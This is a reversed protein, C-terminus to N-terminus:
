EGELGVVGKELRHTRAHIRAHPAPLANGDIEIHQDAQFLNVTRWILAAKGDAPAAECCIPRRRRLFHIRYCGANEPNMDPHRRRKRHLSLPLSLNRHESNAHRFGLGNM